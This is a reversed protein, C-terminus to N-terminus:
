QLMDRHRQRDPLAVRFGRNPVHELTQRLALEALAARLDFRKAGLQAELDVLRLWEGPRYGGNRIALAIETALHRKPRPARPM